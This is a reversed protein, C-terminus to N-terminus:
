ERSDSPAAVKLLYELDAVRWESGEQTIRITRPVLSSQSEPKSADFFELLVRASANQGNDTVGVVRLGPLGDGVELVTRRFAGPRLEALADDDTLRRASEIDRFQVAQWWQLVAREASYKPAARIRDDTVINPPLGSSAASHGSESTARPGGQEEEGGNCGAHAMPTFAVGCLLVLMARWPTM